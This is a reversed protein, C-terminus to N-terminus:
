SHCIRTIKLKTLTKQCKPCPKSEKTHDRLRLDFINKKIDMLFTPTIRVVILTTDSIISHDNCDNIANIEAHISWRGNKMKREGLSYNHGKGIIKNRYVIIAGHKHFMNSKLAEYMAEVIFQTKM